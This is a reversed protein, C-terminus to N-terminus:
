TTTLDDLRGSHSISVMIRNGPKLTKGGLVMPAVISRALATAVTLRLTENVLAELKPCQNLLYVDDISEGKIAPLTEERIEDVLLPDKTM